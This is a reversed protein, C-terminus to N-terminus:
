KANKEAKPKSRLFSSAPVARFLKCTNIVPTAPVWAIITAVHHSNKRHFKTESFETKRVARAHIIDM